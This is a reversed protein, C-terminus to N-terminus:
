VSKLFDVELVRDVNTVKGDLRSKVWDLDVLNRQYMQIYSKLIPFYRQEVIYKAFEHKCNNRQKLTRNISKQLKDIHSKHCYKNDLTPMYYVADKCYIGFGEELLKRVYNKAIYKRRNGDFLLENEEYSSVNILKFADINITIDSVDIREVHNISDLFTKM